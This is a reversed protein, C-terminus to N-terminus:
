NEKRNELFVIDAHECEKKDKEENFLKAEEESAHTEVFGIVKGETRRNIAFEPEKCKVGNKCKNLPKTEGYGKAIIRNDTIGRSIIYDVASKARKQSLDLNYSDGGRSDTHSGLEMKIDQNETLFTVVKDLEIAADPRIDWKALDYYIEIKFTMNKKLPILELLSTVTYVGRKLGSTPVETVFCDSIFRPKTAKVVFSNGPNLCLTYRGNSDTKVVEYGGSNIKLHVTADNMPKKTEKNLVQGVVTICKIDPVLAITVRLTDITNQLMLPWIVTGKSKYGIKKGVLIYKFSSNAIYSVYGSAGTVYENKTYTATDLVSVMASDLLKNELSDTITVKVYIKRKNYTFGFIDDDPGGRTRNSSFFGENEDKNIILGFDDLMSNIPYGMNKVDGNGLNGKFIDLGGLGAHGNSAFYINDKDDAFPFLEDRETNIYPGLNQPESWKGNELSTKYLDTRGMGGPMDSVFYMTQGDKSLTPHGVSYNRNCFPMMKARSWNGNKNVSMYINLKNIRDTSKTPFWGNYNNRTFYATDGTRSFAAPGEHYKTNIKKHFRNTSSVSSDNGWKIEPRIVLGHYGLTKTDNSTLVTEDPLLKSNNVEDFYSRESSMDTEFGTRTYFPKSSMKSTDCWYLELFTTNDRGYVRQVGLGELRASCFIFGSDFPTPSFDSQSSNMSLINVKYKSSDVFFASVNSYSNAFKVAHKDAPNLASYKKYWIMSAEYNGNKALTQAFQLAGTTDASIEGTCLRYIREANKTDGIKFYCDALRVKVFLNSSDKGLIKEYLESANKYRMQSYEVEAIRLNINQQAYMAKFAILFIIYLLIKSKM